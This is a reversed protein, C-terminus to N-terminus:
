KKGYDVETEFLEKRRGEKVVEYKTSCKECKLTKGPEVDEIDIEHGCNCEAM